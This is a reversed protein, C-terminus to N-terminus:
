RNYTTFIQDHFLLFCILKKDKSSNFSNVKIQIFSNYDSVDWNHIFDAHLEIKFFHVFTLLRRSKDKYFLVSHYFQIKIFVRNVGNIFKINWQISLRLKECHVCILVHHDNCRCVVANVFIYLFLNFEIQIFLESDSANFFDDMIFFVM